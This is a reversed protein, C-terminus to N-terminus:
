SCRTRMPAIQPSIHQFLPMDCIEEAGTEGYGVPKGAFLADLGM